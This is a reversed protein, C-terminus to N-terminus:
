PLLEPSTVMLVVLLSGLVSLVVVAAMFLGLLVWRGRSM